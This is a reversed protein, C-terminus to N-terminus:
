YDSFYFHKIWLTAFFVSLLTNKLHFIGFIPFSQSEYMNPSLIFKYLYKLFNNM